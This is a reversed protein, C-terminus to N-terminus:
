LTRSVNRLIIIIIGVVDLFLYFYSLTSVREFFGAIWGAAKKSRLIIFVAAASALIIALAILGYTQATFNELGYLYQRSIRLENFINATMDVMSALALVIFVSGLLSITREHDWTKPMLLSIGWFILTILISEALAFLLSYSAYGVADWPLTREAVFQLDKIILIIYWLQIPFTIALLLQFFYRFSLRDKRFNTIETM